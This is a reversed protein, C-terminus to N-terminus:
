EVAGPPPPVDHTGDGATGRRFALLRCHARQRHADRVRRADRRPHAAVHCYQGGAHQRYVSRRGHGAHSLHPPLHNCGGSGREVVGHQRRWDPVYVQGYFYNGTTNRDAYFYFKLPTDNLAADIMTFYADDYFKDLKIKFDRLGPMYQKFTSGQPTSDAFDTGLSLDEGKTEAVAVATSAGLYIVGNKGHSKAM